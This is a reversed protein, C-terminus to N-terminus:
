YHCVSCDTLDRRWASVRRIPAEAEGNEVARHCDVCFGMSLTEAKSTRAMGAVDGHCRACGVGARAHMGHHFHAFDPLASVARWAVQRDAAAAEHLPQLAPTGRFLDDHCELCLATSPMGANRANDANAHCDACVLGVQEIHQVHSFPIPQEVKDGVGWAAGTMWQVAGFGAIGALLLVALLVIARLRRDARPSFLQGM